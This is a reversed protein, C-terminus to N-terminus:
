LKTFATPNSFYLELQTVIQDSLQKITQSRAADETVLTTYQSSLTNFSSVARVTRTLVTQTGQKLTFTTSLRIQSRTATDDKAIGIGYISESVPSATLTYAADTKSKQGSKVLRDMLDNRLEQGTRDPITDIYIADLAATIPKSQSFTGYVPSLGCAGLTLTLVSTLVLILARTM